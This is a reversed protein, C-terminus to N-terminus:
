PFVQVQDHRVAEIDRLLATAAVPVHIRATRAEDGFGDRFLELADGPGLGARATVCRCCLRPRRANLRSSYRSTFKIASSNRRRGTFNERAKKRRMHLGARMDGSSEKRQM